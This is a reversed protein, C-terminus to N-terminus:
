VFKTSVLVLLNGPLLQLGFTGALIREAQTKAEERGARASSEAAVAAARARDAAAAEAKMKRLEEAVAARNADLYKAQIVSWFSLYASFDNSLQNLSLFRKKKTWFTHAVEAKM